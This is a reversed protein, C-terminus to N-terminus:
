AFHEQGNNSASRSKQKSGKPNRPLRMNGPRHRQVSLILGILVCEGILASGGYSVFPMPMGKTPLLGMAAGLNIIFAIGLIMVCGLVLLRPFMEECQIALWIGRGLLLSFLLILAVIGVLGLEEGISASIFDTFVEPLYFLKQVGQGVGTGVVGGSGFAIMSQILQYGSGYPDSWPELFSTLRKLRYPEAILVIVAMPVFTLTLLALHRIPVGGVFWMAFCVASLLAASGFDPQLLLLALSALLVVLMPALGSSFSNLRDPFSGMYYAMYIVVAPKLLEVPQLTLGLLSFWRQAGNIERGLGPVLVAVMMVIAVALVPLAIARWWTVEVRSLLWMITLGVPIYVLWHGIIRLPDNYRVEAVSISTSYVMLVSFSLLALVCGTLIPDAPLLHKAGKASM